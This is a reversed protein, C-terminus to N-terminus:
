VFRTITKNQNQNIHKMELYINFICLSQEQSVRSDRRWKM